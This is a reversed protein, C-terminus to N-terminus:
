IKYAATNDNNYGGGGGGGWGVEKGGFAKTHLHSIRVYKANHKHLTFVRIFLLYM